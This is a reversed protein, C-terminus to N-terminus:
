FRVLFSANLTDGKFNSEGASRYTATTYRLEAGMTPTFMYGVGAGLQLANKTESHNGEASGPFEAKFQTSAWALGAGVYCGENAKGGLFYQYDAGATLTNYKLDVGDVSRKFMTYDVRPVITHGKGLDMQLHGGLGYGLKGDLADKKGLDGQPSSLTLQGGFKLDQASAMAPVLLSAGLALILTKTM